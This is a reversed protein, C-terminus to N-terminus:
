DPSKWLQNTLNCIYLFCTVLNAKASPHTVSEKHMRFSAAFLLCPCVDLASAYDLNRGGQSLEDLEFVSCYANCSGYM